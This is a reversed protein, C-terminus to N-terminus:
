IPTMWYINVSDGPLSCWRISICVIHLRWLFLQLIDICLLSFTQHRSNQQHRETCAMPYMALRYTLGECSIMIFKPHSSWIWTSHKVTTFNQLCVTEQHWMRIFKWYVISTIDVGLPIMRCNTKSCHKRACITIQGVNIENDAIWCWSVSENECWGWWQMSSAPDGCGGGRSVGM